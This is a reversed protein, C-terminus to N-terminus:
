ALSGYSSRSTSAAVLFRDMRGMRFFESPSWYELNVKIGREALSTQLVQISQHYM